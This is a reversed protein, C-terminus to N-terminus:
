LLLINRLRDGVAIQNDATVNPGVYKQQSLTQACAQLPTNALTNSIRIRYDYPTGPGVTNNGGGGNSSGGGNIYSDDLDNYYDDLYPM